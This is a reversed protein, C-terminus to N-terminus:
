SVMAKTSTKRRRIQKTTAWYNRLIEIIKSQSYVAVTPENMRTSLGLLADDLGDMTLTSIEQEQLCEDIIERKNSM